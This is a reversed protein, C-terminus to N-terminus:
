TEASVDHHSAALSRAIEPYHQSCFALANQESANYLSEDTDAAFGNAVPSFFAHHLGDSWNLFRHGNIVFNRFWDTGIDVTLSGFPWIRGMPRTLPRARELNILCAFENLRCEPLPMPSQRDINWAFTRPSPFKVSLEVAEEYSPKYNEYTDGDCLQAKSAPCNWCQGIAGVGTYVEDELRALMGGIIDSTFLCDNHMIFLYKQDTAEWAYQYRISHRLSEDDLMDPTTFGVSLHHRSKFHIITRGPFLRAVHDVRSNHPQSADEQFYVKGIHQGSHAFLSALTVATQVPKGYVCLAVDVRPAPKAEDMTVPVPAPPSPAEMAPNTVPIAQPNHHPWMSTLWSWLTM